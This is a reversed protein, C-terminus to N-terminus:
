SAETQRIALLSHVKCQREDSVFTPRVTVMSALRLDAVRTIKATSSQRAWATPARNHRPFSMTQSSRFRPAPCDLVDAAWLYMAAM